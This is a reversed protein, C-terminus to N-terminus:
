KLEGTRAQRVLDKAWDSGPQAVVPSQYTEQTISQAPVMSPRNSGPQSPQQLDPAPVPYTGQQPDVYTQANTYGNPHEQPAHYYPPQPSASTPQQPHQHQHPANFHTQQLSYQDAHHGSMKSFTSPTALVVDNLTQPTWDSDAYTM